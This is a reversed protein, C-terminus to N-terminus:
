AIAWTEWGPLHMVSGPADAMVFSMAASASSPDFGELNDRTFAATGAGSFVIVDRYGHLTSGPGDRDFQLVAAGNRDILRLFGANFPSSGGDWNIASLSLASLFEVTDGVAGPQFDSATIPGFKPSALAGVDLVLQDRGAGLSVTVPMGNSDIVVRDQGAGADIVALGASGVALQILDDGDGGTLHFSTGSSNDISLWDNGTGGDLSGSTGEDDYLRDDGPGGYLEDNGFSGTIDDGGAGGYLVDNGAGGIIRDAGGRGDIVDNGSTGTIDDSSDTGLLTPLGGSPIVNAAAATVIQDGLKVQATATDFRLTRSTDNFSVGLGAAGVPISVSVGLGAIVAASGLLRVTFFAADDPLRVTDGGANFSGDLSITGRIVTIVEGGARTGIVTVEGGVDLHENPLTLIVRAM